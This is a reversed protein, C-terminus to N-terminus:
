GKLVFRDVFIVIWIGLMVWFGWKYLENYWKKVEVIKETVEKRDTLRYTRESQLLKMISDAKCEQTLVGDAITVTSTLGNKKISSRYVTSPPCPSTSEMSVKEGPLSLTDTYPVISDRVSVETRPPFKEQCKKETVCNSLFILVFLTWFMKTKAIFSKAFKSLM